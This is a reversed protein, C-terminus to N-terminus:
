DRVFITTGIKTILIYTGTPLDGVFVDKGEGTLLVAGRLDHVEFADSHAADYIHLFDGHVPNPYIDLGYEDANDLSHSMDEAIRAGSNSSYGLDSFLSGSAFVWDPNSMETEWNSKITANQQVRTDGWYGMDYPADWFGQSDWDANVYAVVRIIDENNEIYNFYPVFWENWIQEPTRPSKVGVNPGQVDAKTKQEIDYGQPASECVMVAKGRLRAFDVLNDVGSYNCEQSTFISIGVMDVYDDGPYWETSAYNGFNADCSSWSHWVMSFQDMVGKSEIMQYIKIWASKFATPDYGNHPGDFEYGFRFYIPRNLAALNDILTNIENDYVGNNIDGLMGAAYIAMSLASQSYNSAVDGANQPGSGYSATSTIGEVYNVSSYGSHGAPTHTFANNYDDISTVDQGIVLLRGTAPAFKAAFYSTGSNDDGGNNDDGSNGNDSSGGSNDTGEFVRINDIAIDGADGGGSVARIQIQIDGSYQTLDVTATHWSNGQAGDMDWITSWNGGAHLDIHLSGINAGYMHYKFTLTRDSGSIFDSLIRADNGATQAQSTELHAYNSGEQASPPGTNNTPTADSRVIFDHSDYGSVQDWGSWTGEFNLTSLATGNDDDSDGDNGSDGTETGDGTNGSDGNDSGSDGSDGGTDCAACSGGCDVGTEDGNQIGDSCTATASGDDGSDGNDGAEGRIVIQDAACGGSQAQGADVYCNGTTACMADYGTPCTIDGTTGGSNDDNSSGDDCATCSGGCDVGTENGNQVGDSCTPGPTDDGGSDGGRLTIQDAPCGGSIAQNQDIYCNGTTECVADYGTPCTFDSDSSRDSNSARVDPIASVVVFGVSLLLCKITRKLDM